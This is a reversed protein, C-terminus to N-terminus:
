ASEPSGLVGDMMRELPPPRLEAPVSPGCWRDFDPLYGLRTAREMDDLIDGVDLETLMGSEVARQAARVWEALPHDRNILLYRRKPVIVAVRSFEISLLVVDIGEGYRFKFDAKRGEVVGWKVRVHTASLQAAVVHRRHLAWKRVEDECTTISPVGFDRVDEVNEIDSIDLGTVIEPEMALEALSFVKTGLPTTVPVMPERFWFDKLSSKFLAALRQRYRWADPGAASRCYKLHTEIVKELSRRVEPLLGRLSNSPSTRSLTTASPRRVDIRYSWGGSPEEDTNIGHLCTMSMPHGPIRHFLHKANYAGRSHGFEEVGNHSRSELYIEGEVGGDQVPYARVHWEAGPSDLDAVHSEFDTPKESRIVTTGESTLVRIPVEVRRCWDEIVEVVDSVLPKKLLIEIRTGRRDRSGVQPLVYNRVGRLTLQIPGDHAPSTPKFTDITIQDAVAFVSLFGIGFRSTPVFRFARQFEDSVYYSRGIQLLYRSIIDRDMGVGYDNITFFQREEETGTHESRITRTELTIEVPYRERRVEDIQTPYEPRRLGDADLDLYMQVRTADLANQILERIFTIPEDYVDHILRDFVADRDLEFKWDEVLFRASSSKGIDIKPEPPKWDSHREAHMMVLAANKAEEEIWQCWDRLVQYEERTDCEARIEIKKPAVLFHTLKQYQTWHVVSEPPLPAAANLLLPCARDARMDLLDGLRLMIAMWRVNAHDGALQRQEPYRSPDKLENHSLGHGICVDAITRAVLPDKLSFHEFTVPHEAIVRAARKHHVRRVFEAILHRTYLDALFDRVSRDAPEPADRITQVKEWRESAGGAIWSKWEDSELITRKEDEAVVMGADHLYAAAILIYAEIPSLSVAPKKGKDPFLLHSMQGVINDSHDVTHKTYHPFTQVIYGLWGTVTDRLEEAKYFYAPKEKLLWAGLKTNGIVTM